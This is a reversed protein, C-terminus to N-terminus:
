RQYNRLRDRETNISNEVQKTDDDCTYLNAPCERKPNTEVLIRYRRFMKTVADSNTLNINELKDLKELKQQTPIDALIIDDM